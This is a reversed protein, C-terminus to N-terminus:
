GRVVCVNALQSRPQYDEGRVPLYRSAREIEDISLEDFSRCCSAQGAAALDNDSKRTFSEISAETDPITFNSRQRWAQLLM